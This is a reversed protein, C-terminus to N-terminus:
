YGYKNRWLHPKPQTSKGYLKRTLVIMSEITIGVKYKKGIIYICDIMLSYNNRISDWNNDRSVIHYMDLAEHIQKPNLHIMMGLQYAKKESVM